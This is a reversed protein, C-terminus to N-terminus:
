QMQKCNPMFYIHSYLFYYNLIVNNFMKDSVIMITIQKGYFVYKTPEQVNWTYILTSKALKEAAVAPALVSKKKKQQWFIM